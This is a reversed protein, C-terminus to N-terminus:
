FKLTDGPEVQNLSLVCVTDPGNAEYRWSDPWDGEFPELRAQVVECVLLEDLRSRVDGDQFAVPLSPDMKQLAAILDAVTMM